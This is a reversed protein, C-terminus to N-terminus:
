DRYSEFIENDVFTTVFAWSNHNSLVVVFFETFIPAYEFGTPSKDLGFTHTNIFTYNLFACQCEHIGLEGCLM